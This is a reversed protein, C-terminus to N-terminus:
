KTKREAKHEMQSCYKTCLKKIRDFEMSKIEEDDMAPFESAESASTSRPRVEAVAKALAKKFISEDTGEPAQLKSVDSQRQESTQGSGTSGTVDGIAADWIFREDPSLQSALFDTEARGVASKFPLLKLGPISKGAGRGVGPIKGLIPTRAILQSPRSKSIKTTIDKVGRGLKQAGRGLGFVRESASQFKPSKQTKHVFAKGKKGAAKSIQIAKTGLKTKALPSVLSKLKQSKLLGSTLKAAKPAASLAKLGIRAGMSGVGAPTPLLLEPHTMNSMVDMTWITPDLLNFDLKDGPLNVNLAQGFRSKKLDRAKDEAKQFLPRTIDGVPDHEDLWKRTEAISVM